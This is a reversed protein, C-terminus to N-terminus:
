NGGARCGMFGGVESSPPLSASSSAATCGRWHALVQPVVDSRLELHAASCDGFRAIIHRVILRQCTTTCANGCALQPVRRNCLRLRSCPAAGCHRLDLRRVRRQRRQESSHQQRRAWEPACRSLRCSCTSCCYAAPVSHRRSPKSCSWVRAQGAGGATAPASLPHWGAATRASVAACSVEACRTGSATIRALACVAADPGRHHQPLRNIVQFIM